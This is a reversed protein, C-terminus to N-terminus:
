GEAQILEGDELTYVEDRADALEATWEGGIGAHWGAAHAIAGDDPVLILVRVPGPATNKALAVTIQHREDITAFLELASM